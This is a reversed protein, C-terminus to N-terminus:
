KEDLPQTSRLDWILLSPTNGTGKGGSFLVGDTMHLTRVDDKHGKLSMVVAMNVMNWVTIVKECATVMLRREADVLVSRVYGALPQGGLDSIIKGTELDWMKVNRAATSILCNSVYAM